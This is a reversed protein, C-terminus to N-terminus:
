DMLLLPVGSLAGILLALASGKRTLWAALALVASAPALYFSAILTWAGSFAFFLAYGMDTKGWAPAKV